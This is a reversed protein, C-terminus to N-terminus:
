RSIVPLYVLPDIAVGLFLIGVYTISFHFLRMPKLVQPGAGTRAVRLLRHAELLFLAGTVVATCDPSPAPLAM